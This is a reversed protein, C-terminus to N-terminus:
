VGQRHLPYLRHSGGRRLALKQYDEKTTYIILSAAQQTRGDKRPQLSKKGHIWAVRSIDFGPIIRETGQKIKKITESNDAEKGHQVTISTPVGLVEIPFDERIIKVGLQQRLAGPMRIAREKQTPNELTVRIDGSPLVKAAVVGPIVAKVKEAVEKTTINDGKVTSNEGPRITLRVTDAPQSSQTHYSPMSSPHSAVSAWIRRTAVAPQATQAALIRDLKEHISQPERQLLRLQALENQIDTVDQSVAVLAEPSNDKLWQSISAIKGEILSILSDSSSHSSGPPSGSPPATNLRTARPTGGDPSGRRNSPNM